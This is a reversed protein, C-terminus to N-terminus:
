ITCGMTDSMWMESKVLEDLLVNHINGNSAVINRTRLTYNEGWVDTACGGAETILLAGAALDWANLDAEFYATLRGCAVWSLMTAASGLMRMTRVQPSLRNTARLCAELSKFNPPSGTAIVSSKLSSTSCTSIPKGNLFAGRGKWATFTENRYPDYILGFVVSGKMAHAIIVGSLPMGHAFNTTGDLPDVIWLHDSNEYKKVAENSAEIGPEIDEEGLFDHDPFSLSITRRIVEQARKDVDTVIDRTGIKSEIDSTLNILGLGNSILDGARFAASKAVESFYNMENETLIDFYSQYAYIKMVHRYNPNRIFGLKYSDMCNLVAFIFLM